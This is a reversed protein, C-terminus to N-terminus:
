CGLVCIENVYVLVDGTKLKGDMWAPGNPVISKIQLFEEVNDDGGVITFGLGRTSKVLTTMLREGQLNAPNKTFHNVRGSGVEEGGGSGSGGGTSIMPPPGTAMAATGAGRESMRKAQLVPNEYQTKRNVHDIYYTGYHPDCIKEWGYPLEDDQCDELSKKQFKSLRPDLWHSTGTNHDIFYVEGSDTYAKEWKPPLPGLGDDEEQHQQQQQQQDSKQEYFGGGGNVPPPQQQQQQQQQGHNHHHHHHHHHQNPSMLMTDPVDTGNDNGNQIKSEKGSDPKISNTTGGNLSSGGASENM